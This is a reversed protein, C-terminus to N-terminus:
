DAELHVLVVESIPQPLINEIANACDILHKQALFVELEAFNHVHLIDSWGWPFKCKFGKVVDTIMSATQPYLKVLVPFM